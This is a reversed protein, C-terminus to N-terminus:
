ITVRFLPLTEGKGYVKMMGSFFGRYDSLADKLMVEDKSLADQNIRGGLSLMRAWNEPGSSKIWPLLGPKYEKNIERITSDILSNVM